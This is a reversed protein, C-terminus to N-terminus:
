RLADPKAQWYHKSQGGTGLTPLGFSGLAEQVAGGVYQPGRQDGAAKINVDGGAELNLNQDARINFDGKTRLHVGSEAFFNMNGMADMEFWANGRKNIIYISGGGDDSM